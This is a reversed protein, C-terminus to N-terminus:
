INKIFNIKKILKQKKMQNRKLNEKSAKKILNADLVGLIGERIIRYKVLPINKINFGLEKLECNLEILLYELLFNDDTLLRYFIKNGKNELLIKRILDAIKLVGKFQM